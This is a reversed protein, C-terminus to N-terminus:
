ARLRLNPPNQSLAPCITPRVFRRIHVRHGFLVVKKGKLLTANDISAVNNANLQKFTASPVRDGVQIPM